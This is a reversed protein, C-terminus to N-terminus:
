QPPNVDQYEGWWGAVLLQYTELDDRGRVFRRRAQAPDPVNPSILLATADSLVRLVAVPEDLSPLEVLLATYGDIEVATSRVVAAASAENYQTRWAATTSEYVKLRATAVGDVFAVEPYPQDYELWPM